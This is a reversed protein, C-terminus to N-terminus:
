SIRCSNNIYKPYCNWCYYGKKLIGFFYNKDIIVYDIIKKDWVLVKECDKCITAQDKTRLYSFIYRRLDDIEFVLNSNNM